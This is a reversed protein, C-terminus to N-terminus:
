KAADSERAHPLDAPPAGYIAYDQAAGDGALLITPPDGGTVTIELMRWNNGDEFVRGSATVNVAHGRAPPTDRFVLANGAMEFLDSDGGSGIGYEPSHGDLVPNQASVTTANLTGESSSYSTDAPVVYWNGLNQRFSDAGNFMGDMDTVGSVNWDSVNGDFSGAFSFMGDMDTVGSVDWQSLDGNFSGANSFMESMDTVGSVDWGSVDGDFSAAGLFMGDMATVGPVDWDSLDGDFSGAFSFMRGMDTVGSVDWSSVNGDFATAFSFMGSMDTVGSVDWRSLDGDFAAAGLFMGSMDTVRSLDPADPANHTMHSAGCFARRMGTWSANGWQEISKLKQASTQCDGFIRSLGSVSVAHSGAAAYAHTQPGTVNAGVAGDGWDITYTGLGPFTVTEGPLTTEWVTVFDGPAAPTEPAGPGLVAAALPVAAAAAAALLIMKKVRLPRRFAAGPSGGSPVRWNRRVTGRAM